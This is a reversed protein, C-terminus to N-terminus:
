AQADTRFHQDLIQRLAQRARHLRIKVTNATVQLVQASEETSLGEIDRLVLVTRYAEPLQEIGRHVLSRTEESEIGPDQVPKWQSSSKAQHGTGDFIPLMDEITREPRRSKSRLKMLCANVTIRHLWTSLKSQEDFQGLARFASLFAEQVADQADDESRLMRRAVALLRGTMERVLREYAADDGARLAGIFAPDDFQNAENAPTAM